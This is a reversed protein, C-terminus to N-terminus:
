GAGRAMGRRTIWGRENRHPFNFGVKRLNYVRQSISAKSRALRTAIAGLSASASWLEYLKADEDSTWHRYERRM